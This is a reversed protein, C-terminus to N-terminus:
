CNNIIINVIPSLDKEQNNNIIFSFYPTRVLEINDKFIINSELKCSSSKEVYGWIKKVTPKEILDEVSSYNDFVNNNFLLFYSIIVVNLM